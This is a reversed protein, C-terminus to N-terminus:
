NAARSLPKIWGRNGKALCILAGSNHAPNLSRLSSAVSPGNERKHAGAKQAFTSARFGTEATDLASIHDLIALDRVTKPAPEKCIGGAAESLRYQQRHDARKGWSISCTSTMARALSTTSTSKRTNSSRWPERQSRDQAWYASVSAPADLLSVVIKAGARCLALGERLRRGFYARIV